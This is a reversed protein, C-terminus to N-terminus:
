WGDSAGVTWSGSAGPSYRANNLVGRAFSQCQNSPTWRGLPRGIKLQDNVKKEDVNPVEKCSAGRENSRGAHDTVQVPDGPLDGSQNGPANGRTGGMGAEVSDTKIWHHDVPMWGLAPQSCLFVDLGLPDTYRLPNNYVYVYLNIGGALGIPDRSTWRGINADYARYMALALGSSQHIYHGTYGFDSDSSNGNLVTRRGFSDYTYTAKVTGDSGTVARVSGLHDRHYFHGQGDKTAGDGYFRSFSGSIHDKQACLTTGCYVLRLDQITVGNTKDQIGIRRGLADYQFDSRATVNQPDEVAILRNEADWLTHRNGFTASHRESQNGELDHSYSDNGNTLLQNLNNYTADAIQSGITERIRNGVADYAYAYSQVDNQKKPPIAPTAPTARQGKSGPTTPVAPIARPHGNVGGNATVQLLQGIDDYVFTEDVNKEGNRQWATIQGESDYRYNNGALINGTSDIHTLTKLRLDDLVDYYSYQTQAQNPYVTQMLRKSDGQYAYQFAGLGTANQSIRDLSDYSLTSPYANNDPDVVTTTQLRSLTDYTREVRYGDPATEQALRGAGPSGAAVYSLITQGLGNDFATLRPYVSDYHFHRDATPNQSDAYTIDSIADDLAYQYQTVHDLADTRSKLRSTTNEYVYDVGSNDDYRKSILRGQVDHSFHTVNNMADVITEVSGCGCWTYHTFQDLADKVQTLQRLSNYTYETTRHLRDTERALDLKDYVRELTTNDPYSTKTIRDIDDYTYALTYGSDDTATAIRGADDYTFSAQTHTLANIIRSLYGKPDYEYSTTHQLADTLSLLQGVGNWTFVTVAGGADKYTLPRHQDNYTFEALVDYGAGNKQKVRVLDIGDASYEYFTERGVPDIAHTVKALSNYDYQYMQTTGDDLVKAIQKPKEIMGAAVGAGWTQGPYSYWVRNELPQKESEKVASSVSINVGHLWHTLRAKSYRTDDWAVTKMAHKDWYFSNRYNLFGNFVLPSLGQPVVSESFEIGPAGHLYELREKDGQPDTAELWRTTGSEGYAFHTAGYPTTLTNVFQNDGYALQSQIGVPDTISALLGDNYTFLAARGFPDTVRTIKYPDAVDEYALVTAQGLADVIQVIRLSADYTLTVANGQADRKETLFVKRPYMSAGDPQSFVDVHGDPWRLEYRVPGVSTRVLVSRSTDQPAFSQTAGNYGTHIEAGGGAVYRKIDRADFNPDDEVYTLWNFTWKPGLNAYTFNAPQNVERQNYTVAFNVPSGVPPRYSVPTDTINLSVLLTHFNYQCMPQTKSDSAPPNDGGTSPCSKAQEDSPRTANPDSNGTQGRGYVKGAEALTVPVYGKPLKGGPILMYGSAEQELSSRSVWLDGGFTPDKVHIRGNQEELLAAYHSSKWHVVSPVVLKAGPTRKAMRYPLQAKQALAAVQKLSYGQTGSRAAEIISRKVGQPQFRDVLSQLAKPGCLYAVGPENEMIWLGEKAGAVLETAAGTLPRDKIEALLRRLEEKHGIRAHMRLLEGLARDVLAKDPGSGSIRKGERWAVEFADLAQTFRSADYHILGLNTLLAIRWPSDPHVELYDTLVHIDEKDRRASFQKLAAYFVLNDEQSPKKGIAIPAEPLGYNVLLNASPSIGKAVTQTQIVPPTTSYKSDVMACATTLVILLFTILVMHSRNQCLSRAFDTAKM